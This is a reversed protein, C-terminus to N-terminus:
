LTVTEEPLLYVQAIFTSIHTNRVAGVKQLVMKQRRRETERMSRRFLIVINQIRLSIHVNRLNLEASSM